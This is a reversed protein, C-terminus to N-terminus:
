EVLMKKAGMSKGDTVLDYVHLGSKYKDASIVLEGAGRESIVHSSVKVGGVTYIDIVATKVSQPIFYKISTRNSFGNPVNQELAGNSHEDVKNFTGPVSSILRELKGLRDELERIKTEKNEIAKQQEKVSNILIYTVANADYDLYETKNGLSDQHIFTGITYPAIKQMEQAIIGVFKKDGTEIGAKGNYQFWVPKIEKLLDLGDTFDSIDKKLRRDSMIIWSSSGAKAATGTSMQLQYVPASVGIGINANNGLVLCNSATVKASAGLATANVIDEKGGASYGLYTNKEGTTNYYGAGHGLFTNLSGSKNSYGTKGGLFANGTGSESNFGSQTGVFTNLNGTTNWRGSGNGIFNNDNGNNYWGIEKGLMVNNDGKSQMGSGDGVITNNNGKSQWGASAGFYSNSQGEANAGAATGVFTCFSKNDFNAGAEHGILTNATGTTNVFGAKTGIFTNAFGLTNSYGSKRGIFINSSSKNSYGAEAGIFVNDNGNANANGAEYGLFVNSSGTSLGGAGAGLYSNYNGAGTVGCSSGVFTNGHSDGNGAGANYGLLTNSTGTNTQGASYGVFTNYGGSTTNAGSFHGLFTNFSGSNVKGANTGFFAHGTGSVGAGTGYHTQANGPRTVAGMMAIALLIPKFFHKM